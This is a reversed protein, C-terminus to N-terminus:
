VANDALQPWGGPHGHELWTALTRHAFLEDVVMAAAGILGGTSDLATRQILLERTALPLSREYITQRIAALLVDGSRAFGGGIVILSPNLLNVITALTAGALRGARNILELAAADGHTAARAVDAATVEGNKELIEKLRRSRGEQALQAGLPGIAGGGALAELCGVKGCRCIVTPDQSAQIHGVDGACGKAGRLLRGEIVIGAGIGTGLKLFVVVDHDHAIGARVEGLAMVNVDNDVWVPVDYRAAFMERIRFDDWGPMIPPSIPRGTEFEVPGPVAIGIGWLRSGEMPNREILENFLQEVCGLVVTPGAAIDSPVERHDILRGSLDAIAVATSTAGLDAVLVHGVDARFNLVRPARGGTSVGLEAEELLGRSVLESVRQTVVARSLGTRAILEPRTRARGSRVEDLVAVLADLQGAGIGSGIGSTPEPM